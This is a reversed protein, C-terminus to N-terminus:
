TSPVIEVGLYHVTKKASNRKLQKRDRLWASLRKQSLAKEGMAVTWATYSEYLAAASTEGWTSLACCEAFWAEFPDEESRYQAVLGLIKKPPALGVKQWESLGTLMWNLVGSLEKQRIREELGKDQKEPSFIHNMPVVIQRRWFGHDTGAVKPLHNTASVLKGTMQFQFPNQFKLEATIPDGGTLDKLLAEDIKYGPGVESFRIMRRGPLTGLTFRDLAYKQQLAYAPLTVAYDGLVFQFINLLVSKGNGGPGFFWIAVQEQTSGTLLYGAIRQVFGILETDGDFIEHLFKEFQPCVATTDYVAGLKKTVIGSFPTIKGIRLDIVGKPTGAVWLDSDVCSIPRAILPQKGAFEILAELRPRNGTQTAFKHLTTRAQENPANQASAELLNIVDRAAAHQESPTASDYIDSEKRFWQKTETVCIWGDSHLASFRDANGADNLPFTEPVKAASQLCKLAEAKPLPPTCNAAKECVLNDAEERSMGKARLRCAYAFVARNRDGQTVGDLPNAHLPSKPHGSPVAQKAFVGPLWEPMASIPATDNEWQYANGDLASPPAVAYGGNGRLDLGIVASQISCPPCGTPHNFYYHRGGSPTFWVKTKLEGHKAELVALTQLGPAGNKVDVDLVVLGSQDGTRIGINANPNETGEKDIKALDTTADQHGHGGKLPIKTGPSLPFVPVGSEAYARAAKHLDSVPFSTADTASVPDHFNSPSDFIGATGSSPPLINM